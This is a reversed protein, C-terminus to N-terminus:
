LKQLHYSSTNGKSFNYVRAQQSAVRSTLAVSTSVQQEEQNCTTLAQTGKALTTARAQQSAPRSYQKYEELYMARAERLLTTFGNLHPDRNRVEQSVSIWFVMM